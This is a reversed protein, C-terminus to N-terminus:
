PNLKFKVPLSRFTLQLHSDYQIFKIQRTLALSTDQCIVVIQFFKRASPVGSFSNKKAFYVTILLIVCNLSFKILLLHPSESTGCRCTIVVYTGLEFDQM